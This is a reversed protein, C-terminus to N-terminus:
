YEKKKFNNKKLSEFFQEIKPISTPSNIDFFWFNESDGRNMALQMTGQSKHEAILWNVIVKYNLNDKYGFKQTRDFMFSPKGGKIATLPYGDLGTFNTETTDTKETVSCGFVIPRQEPSLASVTQLALITAAKHHGHTQPTPLLCFIYDYQERLILERLKERVWSVNWVQNLVTDCDLTYHTDKQDFFYYNHIGIIKGGAMIEKKRITPLLERGVAEDTLEAGYIDEALTSYKFGAEGNTVLALDVKGKLEHTVKYVTAAFGTEDDPHATIILVKPPEGATLANLSIIVAFFYSLLLRM